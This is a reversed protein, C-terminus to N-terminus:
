IGRPPAFFMNSLVSRTNEKTANHCSKVNRKSAHPQSTLRNTTGSTIADYRNGSRLTDSLKDKKSTDRRIMRGYYEWYGHYRWTHPKPPTSFTSMIIAAFRTPNTTPTSPTLNKKPSSKPVQGPILNMTMQTEHRNTPTCSM